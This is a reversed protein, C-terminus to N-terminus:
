AHPHEGGTILWNLFAPRSILFNRRGLHVIPIRGEKIALRISREGCRALAAAEPVKLTLTLGKIAKAKPGSARGKNTPEM